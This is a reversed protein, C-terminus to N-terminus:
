SHVCDDLKYGKGKMEMVQQMLHKFVTKKGKGKAKV